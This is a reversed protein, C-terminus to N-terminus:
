KMREDLAQRISQVLVRVSPVGEDMLNQMVASGVIVADAYQAAAKAAEPTGIGFGIALPVDTHKRVENMVRGIGSYDVKRVGTVGTTSICYIFGRANRCVQSIRAVNTTPAIFQILDLGNRQCIEDMEAAEESPLDPIILGDLGAERFSTAFAEEGFNLISNMYAMAALPIDSHQRIERVLAAIKAMNTGSKLSLMAAKQIVPGDAMPDSFPIGLEIIDAGAQEAAQVAALTTAMDPAGATIYIILAKRKEARLAALKDAIRSM